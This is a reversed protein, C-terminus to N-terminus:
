PRLLPLPAASHALRISRTLRSRRRRRRGSARRGAPNPPPGRRARVQLLASYAREFGRCHRFIDNMGKKEDGLASLEKEM